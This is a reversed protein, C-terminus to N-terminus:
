PRPTAPVACPEQWGQEGWALRRPPPHIHRCALFSFPNRSPQQHCPQNKLPNKLKESTQGASSNPDTHQYRTVAQDAALLSGEAQGVLTWIRRKCFWFVRHQQLMFVARSKSSGINRSVPSCMPCTGPARSICHGWQWDKGRGEPKLIFERKPVSGQM